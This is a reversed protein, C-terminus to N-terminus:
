FRLRVGGRGALATGSQGIGYEVELDTFVEANRSLAYSGGIGADGWTERFQILAPLSQGVSLTSTGGSLRGWFNAKAYLTLAGGENAQDLDWGRRLRLGARGILSDESEIRNSVARSDAFADVDTSAYILQAQPEIEWVTGFAKGAELSALTANSQTFARVGDQGDIRHDIWDRQLVADVYWGSAGVHTVYGGLIFGDSSTTGASLVPGNRSVDSSSSWMHGAFLGISTSAGSAALARYVDVGMQLGGLRGDSSSNGFGASQASQNSYDKGIVRGWMGTFFGSEVGAGGSQSPQGIRENLTGLTALSIDEALRATTITPVVIDRIRSRLYWDQDAPDALGGNFLGYRFAGIDFPGGALSLAGAQSTGDVTVLRIGDGSTLGGAGGLNSIVVASTGGLNGRVVLADSANSGGLVADMRIISGDLGSFNGGITLLDGAAASAGQMDIVGASTVNGSVRMAGTGASTGALLSSGADLALSGDLVLNNSGDIRGGMRISVLGATVTRDSFRVAGGNVNITDWNVIDSGVLDGSWAANLNLTNAEDADSAGGDLVVGALDIAADNINLTDTGNGLNVLPTSAAAANWDVLDNGAGGLM